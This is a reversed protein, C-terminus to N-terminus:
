IILDGLLFREYPQVCSIFSVSVMEEAAGHLLYQCPYQLHEELALGWAFNGKACSNMWNCTLPKLKAREEETTM